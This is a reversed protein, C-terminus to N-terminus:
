LLGSVGAVIVLVVFGILGFVASTWKLDEGPTSYKSADPDYRHPVAGTYARGM